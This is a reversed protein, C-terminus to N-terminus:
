RLRNFGSGNDYDRFVETIGLTDRMQKLAARSHTEVFDLQFYDSSDFTSGLLYALNGPYFYVSDASVEHVRLYRMVSLNLQTDKILYVDGNQPSAIYSNAKRDENFQWGVVGLAALGILIFGLYFYVPTRARKEYERRVSETRLGQGCKNCFIKAEKEGAPRFPIMSFHHFERYVKIDLDFSHCNSCRYLADHFTAIRVSRRGTLNILM